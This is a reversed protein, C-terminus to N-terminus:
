GAVYGLILNVVVGIFLAGSAALWLRRGTGRAVLVYHAALILWTAARLVVVDYTIIKGLLTVIPQMSAAITGILAVTPIAMFALAEVPDVFPRWRGRRALQRLYLCVPAGLALLPPWHELLWFKLRNDPFRVVVFVAAAVLVLVALSAIGRRQSLRAAVVLSAILLLNALLGWAWRLASDDRMSAMEPWVALELAALLGFVAVIFGITRARPILRGTTTWPRGDHLQQDWVNPLWHWIFIMAALGVMAAALLLPMRTTLEAGGVWDPVCAVVFSVISLTVLAMGVDAFNANWRRRSLQLSAGGALAACPMVLFSDCHYAGLPLLGMAIAAASPRFGPWEAYSECLWELRDPWALERRRQRLMGQAVVFGFLLLSLGVFIWLSWPLWTPWPTEVYALAAPIMMGTWAVLAALLWFVPTAARRASPSLAGALTLGALDILGDPSTEFLRGTTEAIGTRLLAVVAMDFLLLVFAPVGFTLALWEIVRAIKPAPADSSDATGFRRVVAAVLICLLAVGAGLHRLLPLGVSQPWGWHACIVAGGIFTLLGAFGLKGRGDMVAYALLGLGLLM